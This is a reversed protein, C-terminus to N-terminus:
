GETEERLADKQCDEAPQVKSPLHQPHNKLGCLLKWTSSKKTAPLTGKSRWAQFAHQLLLLQGKSGLKIQYPQRKKLPVQERLQVPRVPNPELEWRSTLADSHIRGRYDLPRPVEQPADSVPEGGWRHASSHM